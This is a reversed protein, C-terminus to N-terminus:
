VSHFLEYGARISYFEYNLDTPLGSPLLGSPVSLCLHSSLILIYTVPLLQPSTEEIVPHPCTPAKM